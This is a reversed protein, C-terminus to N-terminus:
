KNNKNDSNNNNNNNSQNNKNEKNKNDKNQNTMILVGKLIKHYIKSNIKNTTNSIECFNHM